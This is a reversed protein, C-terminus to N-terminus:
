NLDTNLFEAARDFELTEPCYDRLEIIDAFVVTIYDGANFYQSELTKANGHRDCVIEREILYQVIDESNLIAAFKETNDVIYYLKTEM